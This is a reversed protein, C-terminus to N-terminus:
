ARHRHDTNCTGDIVFLLVNTKPATREAQTITGVAALLAAVRLPGMMHTCTAGMVIDHTAARRPGDAARRRRRHM